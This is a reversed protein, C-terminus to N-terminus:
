VTTGALCRVLHERQAGDGGVVRAIVHVISYLVRMIVANNNHLIKTTIVLALHIRRRKMEM